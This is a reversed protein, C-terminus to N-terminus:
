NVVDVVEKTPLSTGCTSEDKNKGDQTDLEEVSFSVRDSKGKSSEVASKVYKELIELTEFAGDTEDDSSILGGDVVSERDDESESASTDVDKQLSSELIDLLQNSDVQDSGDTQVINNDENLGVFCCIDSPDHKNHVRGHQKCSKNTWSKSSIVPSTDKTPQTSTSQIILPQSSSTCM